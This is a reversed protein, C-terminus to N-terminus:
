ERAWKNPKKTEPLPMINNRSIHTLGYQKFMTIVRDLADNAIKIEPRVRFSTEGDKNTFEYTDGNRELFNCATMFRSFSEAMIMCSLDDVETLTGVRALREIILPWYKRGGETLLGRPMKPIGRGLPEHKERDPRFTGRLQKLTAPLNNKPM